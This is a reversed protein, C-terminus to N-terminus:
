NATLWHCIPFLAPLFFKNIKYIKPYLTYFYIKERVSSVIQPKIASGCWILSYLSILQGWDPNCKFCKFFITLISVNQILVKSQIFFQNGESASSTTKALKYLGFWRLIIYLQISQYILLGIVNYMYFYIASFFGFITMMTNTVFRTIYNYSHYIHEVVVILICLKKM